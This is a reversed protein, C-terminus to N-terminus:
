STATLTEQSGGPKARWTLPAGKTSGGTVWVKVSLSIVTDIEAKM